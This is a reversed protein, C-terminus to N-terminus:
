GLEKKLAAMRGLCLLERKWDFTSTDAYQWDVPMEIVTYGARQARVLLEADWFWGRSFTEDYGMRDLLPVLASKRFVKMGCQHDRIRSRFLARVAWNYAYSALRRLPRRRVRAGKVYRSGIVMDAPAHMCLELAKTLFSIDCSFDADIFCVVEGQARYFAQALNERRSPGCRYTLYQLSPRANATVSNIARAFRSSTDSSNDDVIFMEFPYPSQALCAYARRLNRKILYRANFVPVFVSVRCTHAM